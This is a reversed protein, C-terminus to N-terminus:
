RQHVSVPFSLGMPLISVQRCSGASQLFILCRVGALAPFSIGTLNSSRASFGSAPRYLLCATAFFPSKSRIWTFAVAASFRLLFGLGCPATLRASQLLFSPPPLQLDIVSPCFWLGTLLCFSSLSSVQSGREAVLVSVLGLPFSLERGRVQALLGRCSGSGAPFDRFLSLVPPLSVFDPSAETQRRCSEHSSSFDLATGAVSSYSLDPRLSLSCSFFSIL